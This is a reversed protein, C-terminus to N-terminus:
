LSWFNKCFEWGKQDLRLNKSIAELIKGESEFEDLFNMNMMQCRLKEYFVDSVKSSKSDIPFDEKFVESNAFDQMFAPSNLDQFSINFRYFKAQFTHKLGWKVLYDEFEKSFSEFPLREFTYNIQDDKLQASTVEEIQM